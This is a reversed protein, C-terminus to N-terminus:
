LLAHRLRVTLAHAMLRQWTLLEIRDLGSAHTGALGSYRELLHNECKALHLLAHDITATMMEPRFHTFFDDTGGPLTAIGQRHLWKQLVQIREAHGQLCETLFKEEPFRKILAEYTAVAATEVQLLTAPDFASFGAGTPSMDM